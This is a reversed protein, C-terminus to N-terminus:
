RVNLTMKVGTYNNKYKLHSLESSSEFSRPHFAFLHANLADRKSTNNM